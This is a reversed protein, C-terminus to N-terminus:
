NLRNLISRSITTGSNQDIFLYIGSPLNSRPFWQFLVTHKNISFQDVKEGISNYAVINLDQGSKNEINLFDSFPNPFVHIGSLTNNTRIGIPLSCGSAGVMPSPGCPFTKVSNKMIYLGGELNDNILDRKAQGPGITAHMFDSENIVHGLVHAHGLEHVVVSEMDYRGFPPSGTGTHWSVSPSYSLDIEDTYSTSGGCDKYRPRTIGLVGAELEGPDAFRVINIGDPQDKNVTSVDGNEWNICSQTRWTNMARIFANKAGTNADYGTSLRWTFGGNGNDNKHFPTQIKQFNAYNLQAFNIVPGTILGTGGQTIRIAGTGAQSPVQVVILTDSWLQIHSSVPNIFAPGTSANKFEITGSGQVADFGSGKINLESRTGASINQPSVSLILPVTSKESVRNFFNLKKITQTSQGSLEMIITHIQGRVNPYENFVDRGSGDIKDYYICAQPGSYPRYNEYVHDGLVNSNYLFFIGAIGVETYISPIVEEVDDEIKGGPSILVVQDSAPSGKFVKYIELYNATYINNNEPNRFSEKRLLVAEVILDSNQVRSELSVPILACQSFLQPVSYGMVLTALLLLKKM